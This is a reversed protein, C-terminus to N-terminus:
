SRLAKLIEETIEIQFSVNVSPNRVYLIKGKHDQDVEVEFKDVVSMSSCDTYVGRTVGQTIFCKGKM